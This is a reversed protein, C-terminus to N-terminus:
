CLVFALVGFRVHFLRFLKKVVSQNIKHRYRPYQKVSSECVPWLKAISQKQLLFHSATNETIFRLFQPLALILRSTKLCQQVPLPCKVNPDNYADRGLQHWLNPIHTRFNSCVKDMKVVYANDKWGGGSGWSAITAKIMVSNISKGPAGCFLCLLLIAVFTGM